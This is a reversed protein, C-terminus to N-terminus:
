PKRQLRLDVVVKVERPLLDTDAWDGNGVDFAIRDVVATSKLTASDGSAEFQLNFPMAATKDRITLQASCDIAGAVAGAKCGTTKFSASPFKATWFFDQTALTGDREENQTDVSGLDISVEIRTAEPQAPDLAIQPSFRGFSGSFAEGDYSSEFALRSGAPVLTWDAATATTSVALMVILFLPRTM